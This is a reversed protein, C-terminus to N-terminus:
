SWYFVVDAGKRQSLEELEGRVVSVSIHAVCLGCVVVHVCWEYHSSHVRGESMGSQDVRNRLGEM